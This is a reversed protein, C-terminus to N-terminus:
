ARVGYPDALGTWCDAYATDLAGCQLAWATPKLRWRSEFRFALTDDLKHPALTAAGAKAFAESDPGHPVMSNHVSIAGPRFGEPKADYRGLVLGNVVVTRLGDIFDLPPQRADPVDVPHWRLPDPPAHEGEAAGTKGHPQACPTCAGAVVSPRRRYLWSRRNEARPATFASGSLLEAYLGLPARQPNNRGMPLAGAVAESELQNAFGSLSKPEPDM